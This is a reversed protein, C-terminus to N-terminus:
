PYPNIISRKEHFTNIVRRILTSEEVRGHSLNTITTQAIITEGEKWLVKVTCINSHCDYTTSTM